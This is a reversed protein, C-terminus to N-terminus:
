SGLALIARRAAEGTIETYHKANMAEAHGLLRARIAPDLSAEAMRVNAATRLDRAVLGKLHPFEVVISRMMTRWARRYSCRDWARGGVGRFVPLTSWEALRESFAAVSEGGTRTPREVMVERLAREARPHLPIRRDVGTKTGRFTVYGLVDKGDITVLNTRDPLELDGHTIQCLESEPRAATFFTAEVFAAFLKRSRAREEPSLRAFTSGSRRQEGRPRPEVYPVLAAARFLAELEEDTPIVKVRKPRYVPVIVSSFKRRRPRHCPNPLEVGEVESLFTYLASLAVIETQAPRMGVNRKWGAFPGSNHIRDQYYKAVDARTIGDLYHAGFARALRSLYGRHERHYRTHQNVSALFRESVADFRLKEREAAERKEAERKRREGDRRERPPHYTGADIEGQRQGLLKIAQRETSGAKETIRAGQWYVEIYFIRKGDRARVKSKIGRGHYSWRGPAGAADHSDASRPSQRRIM